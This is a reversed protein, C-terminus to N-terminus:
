LGGEMAELSESDPADDGRAGHWTGKCEIGNSSKIRQFRNQFGPRHKFLDRPKVPICHDDAVHLFLFFGGRRPPRNLIQQRAEKLKDFALLFIPCDGWVELVEPFGERV